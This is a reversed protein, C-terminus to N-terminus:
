VPAKAETEPTQIFTLFVNKSRIHIHFYHRAHLCCICHSLTVREISSSIHHNNGPFLWLESFQHRTGQIVLDKHGIDWAWIRVCGCVRMSHVTKLCINLTVNVSRNIGCTDRRNVHATEELWTTIVGCIGGWDHRCTLWLADLCDLENPFTFIGCLFNDNERGSNCGQFISAVIHLKSVIYNFENLWVKYCDTVALLLASM